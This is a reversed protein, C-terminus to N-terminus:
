RGPEKVCQYERTVQWKGCKDKDGDVCIREESKRQASKFGWDACRTRALDVGAREDLQPNEFKRYEYSLQVTSSAEDSGAYTWTKYTTCGILTAMVALIPFARNM